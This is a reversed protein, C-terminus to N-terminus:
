VPKGERCPGRSGTSNGVPSTRNECKGVHTKGKLLESWEARGAIPRRGLEGNTKATHCSVCLTQLNALDFAREPAKRIPAIHDCELNARAGCKVCQFGDRRLAIWRLRAWRSTYYVKTGARLDM